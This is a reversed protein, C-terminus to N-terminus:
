AFSWLYGNHKRTKGRCCASIGDQTSGTEKAAKIQSSYISLQKGTLDYQIVAKSTKKGNKIAIKRCKNNTKALSLKLNHNGYNNNYKYSCWELNTAKNNKRNEDKHNVCPLHKPNAIFAKAVLRHIEITRSNKHGDYLIVNFYGKSKHFKPKLIRGKLNAFAYGNWKKRSLSKVRGLNSVQYKGKYEPIDKWIEKM